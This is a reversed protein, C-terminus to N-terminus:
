PTPLLDNDVLKKLQELVQYWAYTQAHLRASQAIKVRQDPHDILYAVKAQIDKSNRLCFMGVEGDKLYDEIGGVQTAILPVGCSLAEMGVLGFSEYFTPLIFADAAQFQEILGDGSRPPLFQVAHEVGISAAYSQIKSYNDRGVIRYQISKGQSLLEKLADLVLFCGKREVENTVTLLVFANPAISEKARLEKRADDALPHFLETDVGHPLVIIKKSSVGYYKELELGTRGSPVLVKKSGYNFCYWETLCIVYHFPNLLWKWSGYKASVLLSALHCSGAFAFNVYWPGGGPPAIVLADDLGKKKLLHTCRTMWSLRSLLPFYRLIPKRQKLYDISACYPRLGPDIQECIVHVEYGQASLYRLFEAFVREVGGLFNLKPILM